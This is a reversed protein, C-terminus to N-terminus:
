DREEHHGTHVVASAAIARVGEIFYLDELLPDFRAFLIQGNAHPPNAAAPTASVAALAMLGALVSKVIFRHM